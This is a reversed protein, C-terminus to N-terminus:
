KPALKYEGQDTKVVKMEAPVVMVRGTPLTVLKGGPPVNYTKGDPGVVLKSTEAGSDHEHHVDVDVKPAGQQYTHMPEEDPEKLPANEHFFALYIAGIGVLIAVAGIAISTIPLERPAPVGTEQAYKLLRQAQTLQGLAEAAQEPTTAPNAKIRDLIAKVAPAVIGSDELEQLGSELQSTQTTISALDQTLSLEQNITIRSSATSTMSYKEWAVTFTVTTAGPSTPTFSLSKTCTADCTFQPFLDSDSTVTITGAESAVTSFALTNDSGLTAIFTPPVTISLSVPRLTLTKKVDASKAEFSCSDDIIGVYVEKNDGPEITAQDNGLCHTIFYQDKVTGTNTVKVRWGDMSSYIPDLKLDFIQEEHVVVPTTINLFGQDTSLEIVFSYTGTTAPPTLTFPVVTTAKALVDASAPLTTNMSASISATYNYSVSNVITLNMKQNQTGKVVSVQAPKINISVANKFSPVVTISLEESDDLYDPSDTIVKIAHTGASLSTLPHNGGSTTNFSQVVAGDILIQVKTQLPADGTSVNYSILLAVGEDITMSQAGADEELCATMNTVTNCARQEVTLTVADTTKSCDKKCAYSSHDTGPQKTDCDTVNTWCTADCKGDFNVPGKCASVWFGEKCYLSGSSDRENPEVCAPTSAGDDWCNNPACCYAPNGLTDFACSSPYACPTTTSCKDPPSCTQGTCVYGTPCAAPCSSCDHTQTIDILPQCQSNCWATNVPCCVGATNDCNGSCCEANSLCTNGDENGCKGTPCCIGQGSQCTTNCGYCSEGMLATSSWKYDPSQYTCVLGSGSDTSCQTESNCENWTGSVCIHRFTSSMQGSSVCNTGDWCKSVPCCANTGTIPPAVCALNFGPKCDSDKTCPGKESSKCDNDIDICATTNYCQGDSGEQCPQTSWQWTAGIKVCYLKYDGVTVPTATQAQLSCRKPMGMVCLLNPNKVLDGINDETPASVADDGCCKDLGSVWSYGACKCSYEDSDKETATCYSCYLSGSVYSTEKTCTVKCFEGTSTYCNNTFVSSYDCGEECNLVGDGCHNCNSCYGADEYHNATNCWRKFTYDCDTDDGAHSCDADCTGGVNKTEEGCNKVTDTCHDCISCYLGDEDEIHPLERQCQSNCYGLTDSGRPFVCNAESNIPDYDCQYQVLSVFQSGCCKGVSGVRTVLRGTLAASCTTCTESTGDGNFDVCEYGTACEASTTCAAPSPCSATGGSEQCKYNGCDQGQGCGASCVTHDNLGAYCTGPTCLYSAVPIPNAGCCRADPTAGNANNNDVYEGMDTATCGAKCVGNSIQSAGVPVDGVCVNTGSCDSKQTCSTKCTSSFCAYNALCINTSPAVGCGGCNNPDSGIDRCVGSCCAPTTAACLAVCDNFCAGDKLSPTRCSGGAVGATMGAGDCKKGSACAAGCDVSAPGDVWKYASTGDFSCYKGRVNTCVSAQNGATSTEKCEKWVGNDCLYRDTGTKSLDAVCNTGDFCMGAGCCVTSTGTPNSVCSGSSCESSSACTVTDCKKGVSGTSAICASTSDLCYNLNCQTCTAAPCAGCNNKFTGSCCMGTTSDVCSGGAATCIKSVTVGGVVSSPGCTAGCQIGGEGSTKWKYAAGDYYCWYAIGAVTTSKCIKAATNDCATWTNSGTCLYSNSPSRGQTCGTGDWCYGVPCCAKTNTSTSDTPKTGCNGSCCDSNATCVLGNSTTGGGPCSTGSAWSCSGDGQLLSPEPTSYCAGCSTSTGVCATCNARAVGGCCLFRKETKTNINENCTGGLGTCQYDATSGCRTGCQVATTTWRWKSNTSDYSCYYTAGDMGVRSSCVIGFNCELWTDPATGGVNTCVYKNDSSSIGQVCTNGDWCRGPVCYAYTTTGGAHKTRVQSGAICPTTPSTTAATNINTCCSGSASLLTSCAEAKASSCVTGCAGCNSSDTSRDKCVGTCCAPNGGTCANNCAGCHTISTQKNTACTTLTSGDGTCRLHTTDCTCSGSSCTTTTGSGTNGCSNSCAGCNTSSTQLNTACLLTTSADGTCRSYGTKCGCAGGTCQASTTDCIAGCTGCNNNDSAVDKCVSSCCRPTTGTCATCTTGCHSADTVTYYPCSTPQAGGCRSYGTYCTCLGNSCTASTGSGTAGCTNECGGCHSASTLTDTSCTDWATEGACRAYNTACVCKSSSCVNVINTGSACSQGCAGCNAANTTEDVSKTCYFNAGTAASCYYQYTVANYTVTCGACSAGSPSVTWGTGCREAPTYAGCGFPYTQSVAKCACTIETM